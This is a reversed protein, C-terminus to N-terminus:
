STVESSGMVRGQSSSLQRLGHHCPSQATVITIPISAKAMLGTKQMAARIVPHDARCLGSAALAPARSRTAM